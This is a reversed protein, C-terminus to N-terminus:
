ELDFLMQFTSGKKIGHEKSFGSNLELVYDVIGPAPYLTLKADPVDKEVPIEQNVGTVKGDKIWVIDLPILTDKMWFVPKTNEPMVFLMGSNQDLSQRGGLGKQREENTRALEVTIETNDIKVTNAKPAPTSTSAIPLKLSSFNGIKGQSMLGIVTIFAAVAILPLFLKKFM